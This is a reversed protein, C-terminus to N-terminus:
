SQQRWCNVIKPFAARWNELAEDVKFAQIEAETPLKAFWNRVLQEGSPPDKRRLSGAVAVARVRPYIPHMTDTAQGTGCSFPYVASLVTTEMGNLYAMEGTRGQWIHIKGIEYM